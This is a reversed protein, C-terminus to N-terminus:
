GDKETVALYGANLVLKPYANISLFPPTAGDFRGGLETQLVYSIGGPYDYINGADLDFVKRSPMVSLDFYKCIAASLHAKKQSHARGSSYEPSNYIISVDVKLSQVIEDRAQNVSGSAIKKLLPLSSYYLSSLYFLWLIHVPHDKYEAEIVLSAEAALSLVQEQTRYDFGFAEGMLSWVDGIGSEVVKAAPGRPLGSEFKAPKWGLKVIFGDAFNSSDVRPLSYERNFLRRLYRRGDFDSGYIARVSSQLQDINTSVVYVVDKIGFIHKIEELLKIAYSPRCRDLEDVFVFLPKAKENECVLDLLNVLSAKFAVLKEKRSDHEVLAAEFLGDLIDDMEGKSHHRDQSDDAETFVEILDDVAISTTKKLLGKFVVGAAPVLARRLKKISDTRLRSAKESITANAPLCARLVALIAAMLSIAAEDGIDNEWADFYVVPHGLGRLDTVWNTVFFSKGAGWDADLAVTLGRESLALSASQSKLSKTLYDALPKRGLVDQSWAEAALM